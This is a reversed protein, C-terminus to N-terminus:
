IHTHIAGFSWRNPSDASGTIRMGPFDQILYRYKSRFPEEQMTHELMKTNFKKLDFKPNDQRFFDVLFTGLIHFKDVANMNWKYSGGANVDREICMPIVYTGLAKAQLTYHQRTLM